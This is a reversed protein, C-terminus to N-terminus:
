GALKGLEAMQEDTLGILAAEVNEEFHTVTSTGPVPLM